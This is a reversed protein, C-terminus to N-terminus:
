GTAIHGQLLGRELKGTPGWRTRSPRQSTERSGEGPQLDEAREAQAQLQPAQARQDDDHGEEVVM